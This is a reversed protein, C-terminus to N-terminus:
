TNALLWVHEDPLELEPSDSKHKGYLNSMM